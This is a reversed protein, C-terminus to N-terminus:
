YKYSRHCSKCTTGLEQMAGGIANADGAEAAEVVRLAAQQNAKALASFNEFEQWIAPNTGASQSGEPFYDPMVAAWDAISQANESITEFDGAGLLRGIQRMAMVNGKFNAKREAVVDAEAQSVPMLTFSLSAGMMLLALASTSFHSSIRMM